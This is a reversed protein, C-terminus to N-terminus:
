PAVVQPPVEAAAARQALFAALVANVDRATVREVEAYFRQAADPAGGRDAFGGLVEAMREPTRAFFLMDRRVAAAAQDVARDDVRDRLSELAGGVTRRANPLLNGPMAVVLVVAQGRHTWWHEVEVQSQPMRRRLDDRLLRAAVTVAPADADAADWGRGIWGRTAQPAEGELTRVTDAGVEEPGADRAQPLAAFARRVAEPQVDGVAVVSVRDPRYMAAWVDEMRAAGLRVASADTGAASLEDPFLRARLAARVHAAATEREAAREDALARLSQLMETSGSQPARLAATATAALYDLEAAPGTLTYVVADATRFAQVRGGVRRAREELLPLHLHQVLHGAGAYGPPDDALLSVRLAVMPLAPQRHVIVAAQAAQAARGPVTDASAATAALALAITLM